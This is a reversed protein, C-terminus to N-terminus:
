LNKRRFKMKMRKLLAEPNRYLTVHYKSAYPRMERDLRSLEELDKDILNSIETAEEWTKSQPYAKELADLSKEVALYQNVLAEVELIAQQLEETEKPPLNSKMEDLIMQKLKVETLQFPSSEQLDKRTRMKRKLQGIFKDIRRVTRRANGISTTSWGTISPYSRGFDSIKLVPTPNPDYYRENPESSTFDKFIRAAINKRENRAKDMADIYIQFNAEDGADLWGEYIQRVVEKNEELEMIAQEIVQRKPSM